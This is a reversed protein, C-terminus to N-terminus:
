CKSGASKGHRLGFEFSQGGVLFSNFGGDLGKNLLHSSKLSDDLVLLGLIIGDSFSEELLMGLFDLSPNSLPFSHLGLKYGNELVGLSDELLGCDGGLDLSELSHIFSESGSNLTVEGSEELLTLRNM